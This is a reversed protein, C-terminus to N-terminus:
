RFMQYVGCPRGCPYEKPVVIENVLLIQLSYGVKTALREMISVHSSINMTLGYSCIEFTNFVDANAHWGIDLVESPAM